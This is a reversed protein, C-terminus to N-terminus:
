VRRHRAPHAKRWAVIEDRKWFPTRGFHEPKPFGDTKAAMRYVSERKIGLEDAVEQATMLGDITMTLM